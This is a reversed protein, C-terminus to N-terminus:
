RGSARAAPGTDIARKRGEAGSLQRAQELSGALIRYRFPSNVQTARWVVLEYEARHRLATAPVAAVSLIREPRKLEAYGCDPLRIPDLL